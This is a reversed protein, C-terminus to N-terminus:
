KPKEATSITPKQATPKSFLRDFLSPKKESVPPKGNTAPPRDDDATNVRMTDEQPAPKTATLNYVFRKNPDALAPPTTPTNRGPLSSPQNTRVSGASAASNKAFIPEQQRIQEENSM